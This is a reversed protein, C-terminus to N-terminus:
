PTEMRCVARGRRAPPRAGPRSYQAGHGVVSRREQEEAETRRAALEDVGAAAQEVGGRELGREVQAADEVRLDVLGRARDPEIRRVARLQEDLVLGADM